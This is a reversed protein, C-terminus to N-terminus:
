RRRWATSRDTEQEIAQRTAEVVRPDVYGAPATRRAARHDTVGWLGEREYRARQRKLTSLGVQHGAQTLEEHKALERQRLSRRAPDYDPRPRTGPPSDPPLGTIVEVLHREWWRATEVTEAPLRELAPQPALPVRSTTVLELGPDALLGATPVEIVAGTVDALRVTASDCGAVTHAQGGLRLTDGPRLVPHRTM